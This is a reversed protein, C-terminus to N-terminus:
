IRVVHAGADKLEEDHRTDPDQTIVACYLRANVFEAPVRGESGFVVDTLSKCAWEYYKRMQLKIEHVAGHLFPKPDCIIGMYDFCCFHSTERKLDKSQFADAAAIEELKREVHMLWGYRVFIVEDAGGNFGGINNYFIVPAKVYYDFGTYSQMLVRTWDVYYYDTECRGRWYLKDLTMERSMRQPPASVRDATCSYAHPEIRYQSFYDCVKKKSEPRSFKLSLDDHQPTLAM